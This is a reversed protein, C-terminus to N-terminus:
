PLHPPYSSEQQTHSKCQKTDRLENMAEEWTQEKKCIKDKERDEERQAMNMVDQAVNEKVMDGESTQFPSTAAHTLPTHILNEYVWLPSTFSTQTSPRRAQQSSRMAHRSFYYLMAATMVPALICAM